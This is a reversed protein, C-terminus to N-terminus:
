ASVMVLRCPAGVVGPAYRGRYDIQLSGFVDPIEWRLLEFEQPSAFAGATVLAARRINYVVSMGQTDFRDFSLNEYDRPDLQPPVVSGNLHLELIEIGWKGDVYAAEAEDSPLVFAINQNQDRPANRQLYVNSM